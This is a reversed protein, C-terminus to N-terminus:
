HRFCKIDIDIRVAVSFTANSPLEGNGTSSFWFLTAGVVDKVLLNDAIIVPFGLSLAAGMMLLSTM